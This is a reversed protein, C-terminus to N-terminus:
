PTTFSISSASSGSSAALSPWNSCSILFRLPDGPHRRLRQRQQTSCPGRRSDPLPIPPARVSPRHGPPRARRGAQGPVLSPHQAVPCVRAPLLPHSRGFLLPVVETEHNQFPRQRTKRTKRPDTLAVKPPLSQLLEEVEESKKGEKIVGLYYRVSAMTHAFSIMKCVYTLSFLNM